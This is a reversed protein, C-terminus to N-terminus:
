DTLWEPHRANLRIGIVAISVFALGAISIPPIVSSVMPLLWTFVPTSDLAMAAAFYLFGCDIAARSRGWFAFYFFLGGIMAMHKGLSFNLLELAVHTGEYAPCQIVSETVGRMSAWRLCSEEPAIALATGGIAVFAAVVALLGRAPNRHRGRAPGAVAQKM